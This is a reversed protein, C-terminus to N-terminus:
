INLFIGALTDKFYKVPSFNYLTPVVTVYHILSLFQNQLNIIFFSPIFTDGSIVQYEALKIWKIFISVQTWNRFLLVTKDYNNASNHQKLHRSLAASLEAMFNSPDHAFTNMIVKNDMLLNSGQQSLRIKDGLHPFELTFPLPVVPQTM